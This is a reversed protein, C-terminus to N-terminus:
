LLKSHPVSDFAKSFDLFAVDVCKGGNISETIIDLTELLNTACNKSKVFGHQETIILNNKILHNRTTDIVISEILKCVVSTLSISRYNGEHLRDGNKFIPTINAKLWSTPLTGSLFSCNFIVCLPRALSDACKSLFMPHIKDIGISKRVNLYLLRKKIGEKKFLPTPCIKETISECTPMNTQSENIFASNFFRNLQNAIVKSDTSIENNGTSIAKIHDKVKLKSNIYAYVQKPNYLCCHDKVSKGGMSVIIFIYAKHLLQQVVLKRQVIM